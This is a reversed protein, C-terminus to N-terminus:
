RFPFPFHRLIYLDAEDVAATTLFSSGDSLLSGFLTWNHPSYLRYEGLSDRILRLSGNRVNVAYLGGGRADTSALFLEASDSSWALTVGQLAAAFPSALERTESEGDASVLVITRERLGAIWRSDPSWLPTGPFANDLIVQYSEPEGVRVTIWVPRSRDRDAPTVMAVLSEGDPSWSFSYQGGLGPFVGEPLARVPQGTVETSSIWITHGTIGNTKVAIRTGDPSIMVPPPISVVQAGAPFDELTLVHRREGSNLDQLWVSSGAGSCSVLRTGSKDLSPSYEWQSTSYVTRPPSGNVPIELLNLDLVNRSFLIEIGDESAHLSPYYEIIQNLNIAWVKSTRVDGFYLRYTDSGRIPCIILHRSDPFWDFSPTGINETLHFPRRSRRREGDPWPLIWLPVPYLDQSEDESSERMKYAFGIWRGDPSFRLYGPSGGASAIDDPISTYPRLTDVGRERVMLGRSGWFVITGDVPSVTTYEVGGEIEPRPEGAIIGTSYLTDGAIFFLRQGDSSWIPSYATVGGPLDTRPMARLDDRGRIMVQWSQNVRQLYAIRQGDPSWAGFSEQVPDVAFPIYQANQYDRVATDHDIGWIGAVLGSVLGLILVIYRPIREIFQRGMERLIVPQFVLQSSRSLRQIDTAVEVASQYRHSPARELLKELIGDLGAPLDKRYRVPPDLPENVIAYFIATADTGTFVQQGTLLEYFTAGLSFLDSRHDVDKGTILEPSMYNVTGLTTGSATLRTATELRALGFDTIKVQGKETLMLNDPKIDRHIIGQSHAEALGEATQQVWTLVKELPLSKGKAEDLVDRLSGGSVYEMVIFLRGDEEGIEYVQAINTHSLKAAAKAEQIFRAKETEDQAAFHPLFKLAVKRDLRTDEALWVEGMGGSGLKKIIKYHGVQQGEM